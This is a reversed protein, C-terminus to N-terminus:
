NGNMHEPTVQRVHSIGFHKTNPSYHRESYIGSQGQGQRMWQSCNTECLNM